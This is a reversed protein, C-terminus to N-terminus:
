KLTLGKTNLLVRDWIHSLNFKGINNNLTPNNVTIYISEKINRIDQVLNKMFYWFLIKTIFFPKLLFHWTNCLLYICHFWIFFSICLHLMDFWFSNMVIHSPLHKIHDKALDTKLLVFIVVFYLIILSNSLNNIHVDRNAASVTLLWLLCLCNSWSEEDM